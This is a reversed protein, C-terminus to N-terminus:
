EVLPDLQQALLQQASLLWEVGTMERRVVAGRIAAMVPRRSRMSQKEGGQVILGESGGQAILCLPPGHCM